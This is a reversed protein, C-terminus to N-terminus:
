KKKKNALQFHLDQIYEDKSDIVEKMEYYVYCLIITIIVDYIIFFFLLLDSNRM